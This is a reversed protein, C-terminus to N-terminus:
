LGSAGSSFESLVDKAILDGIEKAAQYRASIAGGGIISKQAINEIIELTRNSSKVGPTLGQAMEKATNALKGLATADTDLGVREAFQGLTQEDAVFGKSSIEKLINKQEEPKLKAFDKPRIGKLIQVAKSQLALEADNAGKM